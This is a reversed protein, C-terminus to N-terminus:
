TWWQAKEPGPQKPSSRDGTPQRHPPDKAAPVLKDNVLDLVDKHQDIQAQVYIKDFESPDAANLKDLM